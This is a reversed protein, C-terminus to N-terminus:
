VEHVVRGSRGDGGVVEGHGGDSRAASHPLYMSINASRFRVSSPATSPCFCSKADVGDASRRWSIAYASPCICRSSATGKRDCSSVSVDSSGTTRWSAASARPAMPSGAEISSRRLCAVSAAGSTESM